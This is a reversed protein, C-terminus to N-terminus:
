MPLWQLRPTQAICPDHDSSRYPSPALLAADLPHPSLAGMSTFLPLYEFAWICSRALKKYGVWGTPATPELLVKIGKPATPELLVLDVRSPEQFYGLFSTNSKIIPFLAPPEVVM